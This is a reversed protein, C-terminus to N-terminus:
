ESGGSNAIGVHCSDVAHIFSPLHGYIISQQWKQVETLLRRHGDLAYLKCSPVTLLVRADMMSDNSGTVVENNNKPSSAM